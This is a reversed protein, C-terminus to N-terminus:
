YSKIQRYVFDPIQGKYLSTDKEGLKRKVHSTKCM